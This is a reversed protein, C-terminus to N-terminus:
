SVSDKFCRQIDETFLIAEYHLDMFYILPDKADFSIVTRAVAM